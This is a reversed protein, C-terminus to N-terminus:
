ISINQLMKFSFHITIHRQQILSYMERLFLFQLKESKGGIINIYNFRKQM